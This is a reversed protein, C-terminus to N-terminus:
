YSGLYRRLFWEGALLVFLLLFISFYDMLDNFATEEYQVNVIDDRKEIASLLSGYQSLKYFKGNSQKALQKMVGHNATTESKEIQIDEVVFYGQKTYAKGDYATKATWNYRGAKLKGLSIKYSSGFVGFQSRYVKGNEATVKMDILPKTIPELSANYFSANVIVDEDITFRKQFEVRLGAGQQKVLLYNFVKSWLDKFADHNGSRVFDNLKWRWLGEGYLVGFRLNNQQQFFLLPEKKRIQGIRQFLLVEANGNIKLSGFKSKLPPYYTLANSVQDDIEFSSFTPNLFAQNDDTQNGVSATIGLNLKSLIGNTTNPGIIYFLPIKKSQIADLTTQDFNSGPEHWIVLNVKDLSKNWDKILVSESEINENEDLVDKLAAIDPHPAGGLILVKSRADIVEIYFTRTNNKLTYENEIGELKVTYTQFGPKTANLVFNAQQFDRKGNKYQVTQSGVKQGNQFISITVSRAGIKFAELDVQVPFDNKLFAIDNVSINRILQDKKPTTDGVALTFVPTLSIKEAAYSPNAGVNYNGDSIFAVGGINRNYYDSNIKEFGLELASSNEKFKPSESNVESGVTLVVLEFRETFKEKLKALFDSTNKKVSLSDKYNLMSSSNDILAIFIPKEERYNLSQLIIGLLLIGILALSSFRLIRLLWQFGLKLEAFWGKNQYHFLTIGAAVFLIPLLWWFSFDSILHM